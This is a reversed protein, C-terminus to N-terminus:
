AFHCSLRCLVAGPHASPYPVLTTLQAISTTLTSRQSPDAGLINRNHHRRPPPSPPDTRCIATVVHGYDWRPINRNHHRRPPPCPPLFPSSPPDTRRIAAVVRDCDLAPVSDHVPLVPATATSANALSAPQCLSFFFFYAKSVDM